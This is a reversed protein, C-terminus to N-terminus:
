LYYEVQDKLMTDSTFSDLMKELLNHVIKLHNISLKQGIKLVNCHYLAKKGLLPSVQTYPYGPLLFVAICEQRFSLSFSPSRPVPLAWYMLVNVYLGTTFPSLYLGIIFPFLDPTLQM